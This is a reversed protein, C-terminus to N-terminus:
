LRSLFIAHKFVSLRNSWFEMDTILDSRKVQQWDVPKAYKKDIKQLHELAVLGFAHICAMRRITKLKNKKPVDCDRVTQNLKRCENIFIEKAAAVSAAKRIYTYGGDQIDKIADFADNILQGVFGSQHIFQKDKETWDEELISAWLLSSNGCKEKSIYLVEELKINSDLQKASTIQWDIALKLSYNYFDTTTYIRKLEDDIAMYLNIKPTRDATPIRKEFIDMLRESSWKEEDIFDDYLTALVSVLALRETEAHTLERNKITLYTECNVVHNFLPYYFRIKDKEKKSPNYGYENCAADVKPLLFSKIFSLQKYIRLGYDAAYYLIQFYNM